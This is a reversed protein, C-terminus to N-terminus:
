WVLLVGGGAPGGGSGRAGVAPRRGTKTALTSREVKGGAHGVAGVAHVAHTHEAARLQAPTALLEAYYAGIYPSAHSIHGGSRM